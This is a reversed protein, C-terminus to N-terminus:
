TRTTTCSLVLHLGFIYVLHSMREFVCVCPVELDVTTIVLTADLGVDISAFWLLVHLTEQLSPSSCQIATLPIQICAYSNIVLDKAKTYMLINNNYM